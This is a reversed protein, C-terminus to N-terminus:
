CSCPSHNMHDKRDFHRWDLSYTCAAPVGPLNTRQCDVHVPHPRDYAPGGAIGHEDAHRLCLSSDEQIHPTYADKLNVSLGLREEARQRASLEHSSHRHVDCLTHSECQSQSESRGLHLDIQMVIWVGVGVGYM